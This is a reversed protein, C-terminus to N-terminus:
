LMTSALQRSGATLILLATMLVQEAGKLEM